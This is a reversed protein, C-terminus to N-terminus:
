SFYAWRPMGVPAGIGPWTHNGGAGRCRRVGMRLATHRPSPEDDIWVDLPVCRPANTMVFGSWFSVPQGDAASGSRVHRDCAIFTVAAHGDRPSLEVGRPLPGYGLGAVGRTSPSLVVTVRHGARVLAPFKNGGFRRVTTPPTSAAGVLVLPGVVVNRPDTFAAPFTAESRTSCDEVVGRPREYAARQATTKATARVRSQPATANTQSGGCAALTAAATAATASRVMAAVTLNTM